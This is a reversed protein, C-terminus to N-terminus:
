KFTVSGLSRNLYEIDQDDKYQANLVLYVGQDQYSRVSLYFNVDHNPGCEYRTDGRFIYGDGETVKGAESSGCTKIYAAITKYAATDKLTQVVDQSSLAGKYVIFEVGSGSGDSFAASDPTAAVYAYNDGGKTDVTSWATPVDVSFTGSDDTVSEYGGASSTGSSAGSDSGGSSSLTTIAVLAKAPNNVEGELVEGTSSRFVQIRIPKDAGHTRLVDCYGAKTVAQQGNSSNVDANTIVDRGEMKTIVDGPKLGVNSAPSGSRVGSVFIGGLQNQDDYFAEGNVGISEQDKGTRLVDIVPKALAVPIAFYQQAQQESGPVLAYDIGVVTGDNALLPGGSNGHQIPNSMQIRYDMAAWETNGDVHNSEINGPIIHYEQDGLPFGAAWVSASAAPDGDAWKLYPFPGPGDLQVAALDGCESIGLVKAIVPTTSSGVYAKLTAAGEAVHANTVAIGSPDIIFGSGSWGGTQGEGTSPDILEGDAVFRVVAAQAQQYSSAAQGAELSASSGSSGGGGCATLALCGAVLSVLAWHRM